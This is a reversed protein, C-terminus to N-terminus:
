LLDRFTIAILMSGNHKKIKREQNKEASLQFLQNKQFLFFWGMFLSISKESTSFLIYYITNIAYALNKILFLLNSQM